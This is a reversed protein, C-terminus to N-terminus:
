GHPKSPFVKVKVPNAEFESVDIQLDFYQRLGFAGWNSYDRSMIDGDSDYVVVQVEAYNDDVSFASVEGVICVQHDDDLYAVCSEVRIKTLAEMQLDRVIELKKKPM